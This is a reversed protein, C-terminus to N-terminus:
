HFCFQEQQQRGGDRNKRLNNRSFVLNDNPKTMERIDGVRLSYNPMGKGALSFAPELFAESRVHLNLPKSVIGPRGRHLRDEGSGEVESIDPLSGRKIRM